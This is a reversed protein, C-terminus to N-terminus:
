CEAVVEEEGGIEEMEEIEVTEHVKKMHTRLLRSYGFKKPCYECSFSKEKQHVTKIHVDAFACFFEIFIM